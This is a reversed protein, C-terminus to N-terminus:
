CGGRAGSSRDLARSIGAVSRAADAAAAAAATTELAFGLVDHALVAIELRFLCGVLATLAPRSSLAAPAQRLALTSRTDGVRRVAVVATARGVVAAAALLVEAGGATWSPVASAGDFTGTASWNSHAL